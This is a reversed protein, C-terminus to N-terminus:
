NIDLEIKLDAIELNIMDLAEDFYHWERSDIGLDQARLRKLTVLADLLDRYRDLMGSQETTM